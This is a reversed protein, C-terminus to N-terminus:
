IDIYVIIDCIRLMSSSQLWNIINDRINEDYM